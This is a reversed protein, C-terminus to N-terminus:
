SVSYKLYYISIILTIFRVIVRAVILGILGYFYVSFLIITMQFIGTFLKFKFITKVMKQSQLVSLALLAPITIISVAFIQSYLISESYQSFFIKYIFPAIFIYITVILLFLFSLKAMKKFITKKIEKGTKQSFKPLALFNINKLIGKIQEPPTIAFAYIALETAGLFHFVLIKDLYFNIQDLIGILSLHKGYAITEPDGKANPQFKSKVFFYFFSNFLTYSILYVAILWILNKTAFLTIIISLVSLIHSLISYRANYSFLKRGILLAGYIQSAQMLPLFIAILLLPIPLITNGQVFYYIGLSISALSGLVGFKIKEKFGKALDGELGRAVAQTIATGMGPLCFIGLIGMLSLIYKYNGYVAPDLLNAFAIALLFSAFASIIQGSTLWFGGKALYVNDTGTYKQTKRLFQYLWNKTKNIM